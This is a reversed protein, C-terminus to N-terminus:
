FVVLSHFSSCVHDGQIMNLKTCFVVRLTLRVFAFFLQFYASSIFWVNFVRTKNKTQSNIQHGFMLMLKIIKAVVCLLIYDRGTDEGEEGRFVCCDLQKTGVKDAIEVDGLISNFCQFSSSSSSSSFFFSGEIKQRGARKIPSRENRKKLRERFSLLVNFRIM